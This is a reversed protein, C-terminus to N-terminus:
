DKPLAPVPIPGALRGHVFQDVVPHGSEKLKPAPGQWVIRGEYLMAVEDGVHQASDIDHTITIAATGLDDITRRILEDIQNGALADLGTTPEDFLLVDPEAAMARAIGVRKQMGASLDGPLMSGVAPDLGVRTLWEGAEAKAARRSLRGFRLPAFMANEWVTLSDLLASHQFLLGFRRNMETRAAGNVGVLEQDDLRISGADPVIFGMICKLTVSKGSGSGGIIVLSRGKEVELDVGRLVAHDGFSKALGKIQLM